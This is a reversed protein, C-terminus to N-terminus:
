LTWWIETAGNWFIVGGDTPIGFTPQSSTPASPVFPVQNYYNLPYGGCTTCPTSTPSPSPTPTPCGPYNTCNPSGYAGNAILRNGYNPYGVFSTVLNGQFLDYQYRCNPTSIHLSITQQPCITALQYSFLDQNNFDGNCARYTAFGVNYACIASGNTITANGNPNDVSGTLNEHGTSSCINSCNPTASPSPSPGPSVSPSVSPSPFVSPSPSPTPTPTPSPACQGTIVENSAVSVNDTLYAMSFAAGVFLIAFAMLFFRLTRVFRPKNKIRIKRIRIKM